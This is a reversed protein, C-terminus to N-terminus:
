RVRLLTKAKDDLEPPEALGLKKFDARFTMVSEDKGPKKVPFGKKWQLPGTEAPTEVEEEPEEDGGGSTVVTVMGGGGTKTNEIVKASFRLLDANEADVHLALYVTYEARPMARGGLRLLFRPTGFGGGAEPVVGADVFELAEEAELQLSLIAVPRSRVEGAEVQVVTRVEDPLGRLVTFLLDPELAFPAPMGEALRSRRVKWQEGVKALMRGNARVFHGGDSEGWVLDRSWGGDVEIDEDGFPMGRGRMMGLDNNEGTAFTGRGYALMKDLARDVLAKAEASKAAPHFPGSRPM